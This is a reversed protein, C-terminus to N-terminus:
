GLGYAAQCLCVAQEVPGADTEVMGALYQAAVAVQDGLHVFQKGEDLHLLFALVASSTFM